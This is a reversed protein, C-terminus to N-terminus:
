RFIQFFSVTLLGDPEMRIFVWPLFVGLFLELLCCFCIFNQTVRIFPLPVILKAMGSSTIASKAPTTHIHFINEAMKSINEAAASVIRETRKKATTAASSSFRHVPTGVQTNFDFQCQLLNSM